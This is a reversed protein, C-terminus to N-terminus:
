KLLSELRGRLNQELIKLFNSGRTIKAISVKLDNAMQRQTKEGRLLEQVIRFRDRIADREEPTLFLWFLEDLEKLDQAQQCLGLFGRWGEEKSEM